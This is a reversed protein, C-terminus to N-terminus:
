VASTTISSQGGGDSSTGGSSLIPGTVPSSRSTKFGVPLSALLSSARSSRHQAQQLQLQRSIERLRQVSPGVLSPERREMAQDTPQKSMPVPILHESM